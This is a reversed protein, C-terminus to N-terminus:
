EGTALAYLVSCRVQTDFVNLAVRGAERRENLIEGVRREITAERHGNEDRLVLTARGFNITSSVISEAISQCLGEEDSYYHSSVVDTCASELDGNRKLEDFDTDNDRVVRYTDVVAYRGFGNCWDNYLALFKKASERREKHGGQVATTDELLLLGGGRATDFRCQMGDGTLSWQIAGHEYADLIFATGTALRRRLGVNAPFYDNPDDYNKYGPKFGVVKWCDWETPDDLDWGESPKITIEIFNPM